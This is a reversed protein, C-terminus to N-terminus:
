GITIALSGIERAARYCFLEIAASARPAKSALLTRVDGSVGSVGLLGSQYYLLKTIDSPNMGEASMLHLVVGPDVSGSRTSMVLGDLATFGMTTDCSQGDVTACLSAGAGLHAFIIRRSALDHDIARLRRTLWTYSLGHFGYKHIGKDELAFPLGYRRVLPCITQHFATDFVGIQPAEPRAAMAARAASLNHPQHLPALADLGELQAMVAPTLRAPASFLDGGHVIRHGCAVLRDSGLHADCFDFVAELFEEHPLSAGDQWRKDGILHGDADRATM